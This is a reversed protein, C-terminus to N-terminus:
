CMWYTCVNKEVAKIIKCKKDKILEDSKLSYIKIMAIGLRGLDVRKWEWRGKISM